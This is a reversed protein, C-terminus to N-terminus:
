TTNSLSHQEYFVNFGEEGEETVEDATQERFVEVSILFAPRGCGARFDFHTKWKSQTYLIM